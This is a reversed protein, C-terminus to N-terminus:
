EKTLAANKDSDYEDRNKISSFATGPLKHIEKLLTGLLREVHGGYRPTKVPRFELNIGYTACSKKFNNSRFDAGNDVHITQFDGFCALRCKCQSSNALRRESYGYPFM